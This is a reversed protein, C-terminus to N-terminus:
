PPQAQAALPSDHQGHVQRLARDAGHELTLQAVVHKARESLCGGGKGAAAAFEASAVLHVRRRLRVTRSGCPSATWPPAARSSHVTAGSVNRVFLVTATHM